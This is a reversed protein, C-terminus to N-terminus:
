RRLMVTTSGLASAARTFETYYMLRKEENLKIPIKAEFEDYISAIEDPLHLLSRALNELRSWYGQKLIASSIRGWQEVHNRGKSLENPSKEGQSRRWKSYLFFDTALSCHTAWQTGRRPLGPGRVGTPLPYDVGSAATALNL